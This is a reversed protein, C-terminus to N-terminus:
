KEEKVTVNLKNYPIEIGSDQFARLVKEPFANYVSWYRDNSVWVRTLYNVASSQLESVRIEPEPKKLLYPDQAVLAKLVAKVADIDAEYAVSVNLDLRRTPRASYNILEGNVMQTNPVIIIVNDPTILETNTIKIKKVNGETSGVRVKDGEKFPKTFLLIIGNAVNSLSNQLALGVVLGSAAVIAIVSSTDINLVRMVWFFLVLALAGNVLSILFSVATGDLKTRHFVSRLIRAVIKIVVIGAVLLVLAELVRTGTGRFFDELIKVLEGM